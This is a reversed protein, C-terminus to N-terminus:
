PVRRDQESQGGVVRELRNSGKSFQTGVWDLRREVGPWGKEIAGGLGGSLTVDDRHSWLAKVADPKGDYFQNAADSYNQFLAALEANLAPRTSEDATPVQECLREVRARLETDTVRERDGM